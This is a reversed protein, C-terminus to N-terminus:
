TKFILELRRTHRKPNFQADVNAVIYEIEERYIETVAMGIKSPTPRANLRSIVMEVEEIILRMHDLDISNANTVVAGELLASASVKYLKALEILRDTTIKSQRNELRSVSADTIGLELGVQALTLGATERASKLAAHILM